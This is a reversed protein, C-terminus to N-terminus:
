ILTSPSSPPAHERGTIKTSHSCGLYKGYM